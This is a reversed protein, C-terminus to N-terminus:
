VGTAVLLQEEVPITARAHVRRSLLCAAVCAASVIIMFAYTLRYGTVLLDITHPSVASITGAYVARRDGGALPQALLTLCVATGVVMGTNQLMLRIANVIGLRASPIGTLIATINAPMFVGSGLGVLVIGVCIEPYPTHPGTTVLLVVLGAGAVVSGIAALGRPSAWRTLTGLVASGLVTAASLPLLAVGAHLASDGRVAQFYLGVILVVSSRAATNLFAATNAASFARDAFLRLDVIPHAGRREVYVFAPILVVFATLGTLVIPNTWGLAGGESLAVLLGGLGLVFLLNGVPDVGVFEEARPTRRLTVTGWALCVLGVPVNFWFVWRWGLTTVLLGGLTPGLLAAVSFAALYIGMGRSLLREPFAASVIAASNTLLMASAAAQLVRFAILVGVNPAFGLLLSAGTYVGLGVLYMWRRGLIDACRGWVLTLVTSVLLYTLLIWSAESSTAHFHRVVAPLATNLASANLSTLISALGVVSLARWAYAVDDGGDGSVPGIM